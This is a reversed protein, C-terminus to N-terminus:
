QAALRSLAAHARALFDSKTEQPWIPLPAGFTASCMVPLPLVEGKPLVRHMNTLYVPVLEAEPKMRALHYLGSKFPAVRAGRGRTGEPFIVLSHESGMAEAVRAVSKRAAEEGDGRPVLVAHFVNCAIFRKLPTASWYDAAAVPRLHRRMTRPLVAWVMVFDLHSSHNAYYIRQRQKPAAQAWRVTVGMALRAIHTIVLTLPQVREKM